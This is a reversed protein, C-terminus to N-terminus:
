SEITALVLRESQHVSGRRQSHKNVLFGFWHCNVGWTLNGKVPLLGDLVAKVSINTEADQLSDWDIIGDGPGGPHHYSGLSVARRPPHHVVGVEVFVSRTLGVM